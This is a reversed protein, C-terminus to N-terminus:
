KLKLRKLGFLFDYCYLFKDELLYRAKNDGFVHQLYKWTKGKDFSAFYYDTLTKEGYCVIVTAFDNQYIEKINYKKNKFLFNHDKINYSNSYFHNDVIKQKENLNNITQFNNGKDTSFLVISDLQCILTDGHLYAYDVTTRLASNFKAEKWNKGGDETLFLTPKFVLGGVTKANKDEILTYGGVLGNDENEFYIIQDISKPEDNIGNGKITEWKSNDCGCLLILTLIFLTHNKM